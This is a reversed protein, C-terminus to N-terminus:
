KKHCCNNAYQYKLRVDLDISDNRRAHMLKGAPCEALLCLLIYVFAPIVNHSFKFYKVSGEQKEKMTKLYEGNIYINWGDM